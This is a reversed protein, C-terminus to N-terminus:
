LKMYGYSNVIANLKQGAQCYPCETHAYTKYEPFDSTKFISHIEYRDIQEVASFLASVGAVSGEYYKICELAREITRGTTATALLLLVHKNRVMPQLNDSFVLQGVSNMEPSIVYITKHSNMSMFGAASLEEALYAGIVETGDMCVITDVVTSNVYEHVISKAAALAMSQRTKLTTMDMYFNIHSHNTAFHGPIVKVSLSNNYQSYVKIANSEM